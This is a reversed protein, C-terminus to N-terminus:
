KKAARRRPQPAVADTIQYVAGNLDAVYVEGNQDEGFTSIALRTSALTQSTWSGDSQQTGGFITGTCYDGYFYIGTMRSFRAGRYRYGGTISCAGGAHSYELVPRVLGNQNCSTANFCHLGEMIRWGYNEGGISTAPQFDVEEFAGQGVDGIILDGTIRDFSFRWPNRLGYAWIENGFPNSAPVRYPLSSVDIRLIKGLLVSLNQGNNNPDGGSGGDGVGAYLFGDPGFQLQGGNHNSFNPHPIMLVIRASSPDARDPDSSVQYRAIAINGSADTYYVFFQGNSRPDFALGLLGRESEGSVGPTILPRIDLFPTPLVRTGDHIVIQGAQLVIFLRSDGANSIAVPRSLGTAIQKLVIQPQAAAAIAWFFIALCLKKQGNSRSM